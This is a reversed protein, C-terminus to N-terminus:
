QFSSSLDHFCPLLRPRLFSTRRCSLFRGPCLLRSSVALPSLFLVLSPASPSPPPSSAADRQMKRRTAKRQEWAVRRVREDEVVVVVEMGREAGEGEEERTTSRAEEGKRSEGNRV